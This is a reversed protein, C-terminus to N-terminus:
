LRRRKQTRRQTPKKNCVRRREFSLSLSLSRSSDDHTKNKPLRAKAVLVVVYSFHLVFSDMHVSIISILFPFLSLSLSM